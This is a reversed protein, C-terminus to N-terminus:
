STMSRNGQGLFVSLLTAMMDSGKGHIEIPSVTQHGFKSCLHIGPVMLLNVSDMVKIRSFPDSRKPDM